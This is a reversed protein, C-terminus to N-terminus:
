ATLNPVNSARNEKTTLQIKLRSAVSQKYIYESVMGFGKLAIEINKPDTVGGSELYEEIIVRKDIGISTLILAIIVGTRDKGATCHVLLPFSNDNSISSLVRNAWNRVQGNSTDYNEISDVAPIHIQNSTPFENDKGTRLNVITRVPPLEDESFLENVTGGRFLKGELMIEEGSLINVTEGVDRLNPIM